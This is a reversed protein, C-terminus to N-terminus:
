LSGSLIYTNFSLSLKADNNISYSLQSNNNILNGLNIKLLSENTNYKRFNVSFDRNSISKFINTVKEPVYESISFDFNLSIEIPYKIITNDPLYNGITYVPERPINISLNFAELRNSNAENLNLDVYCNDVVNFNELFKPQYSFTGSTNSLEGIILNKVNVKPYEGLRYSISYNTLYGSSFTFYNNGYEVRGSFSKAGTYSIFRDDDSLIYTLDLNATVPQSTSYNLNNDSVRMSPKINNTYSIQLDQIGSILSNNLYFNQNEISYVNFM